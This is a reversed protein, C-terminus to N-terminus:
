RGKDSSCQESLQQFFLSKGHIVTTIIQIKFTQM